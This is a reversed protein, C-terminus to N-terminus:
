GRGGFQNFGTIDSDYPSASSPLPSISRIKFQIGESWAASVYHQTTVFCFCLNCCTCIFLYFTGYYLYVVVYSLFQTLCQFLLFPSLFAPESLDTLHRRYFLVVCLM